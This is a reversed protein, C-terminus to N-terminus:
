QPAVEGSPASPRFVGTAPREVGRPQDPDTEEASTSETSGSAPPEGARQNAGPPRHGDTGDPRHPEAAEELDPASPTSQENM